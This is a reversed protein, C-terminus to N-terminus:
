KLRGRSDKGVDVSDCDGMKGVIVCGNDGFLDRAQRGHDAHCNSVSCIDQWSSSTLHQRQVVSQRDADLMRRLYLAVPRPGNRGEEAMGLWLWRSSAPIFGFEDRGKEELLITGLEGLALFQPDWAGERWPIRAILHVATMRIDHQRCVRIITLLPILIGEGLIMHRPTQSAIVERLWEICLNLLVEFDAEFRDYSVESMDFCCQIRMQLGLSHMRLLRLGQADASGPKSRQLYTTIVSQWQELQTSLLSKRAGFISHLAHDDAMAIACAQGIFVMASSSFLRWRYFVQSTPDVGFVPFDITSKVSIRMRHTWSSTLQRSWQSLLAFSSFVNEIATIDDDVATGCGGHAIERGTIPSDQLLNVGCNLLADVSKLNGQLTEYLALLITMILTTRLPVRSSDARLRDQFSRLANLHHRLSALHNKNMVHTHRWPNFGSPRVRSIHQNTSRAVDSIALTLAGLALVSQCISEDRLSEVLITGLCFDSYLYGALDPALQHRFADLYPVSQRTLGPMPPIARPVLGQVSITRKQNHTSLLGRNETERHSENGTNSRAQPKSSQDAYGDCVFEGRICRACFPRREDCKVRRVKCTFCGSRVKPKSARTRRETSLRSTKVPGARIPVPYPFSLSTPAAAPLMSTTPATRIQRLEDNAAM